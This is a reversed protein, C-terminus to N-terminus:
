TETGLPLCRTEKVFANEGYADRLEKHAEPIYAICEIISTAAVPKHFVDCSILNGIAPNPSAFCLMVVVSFGLDM